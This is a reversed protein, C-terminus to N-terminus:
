RGGKEVKEEPPAKIGLRFPVLLLQSFGGEVKLFYKPLRRQVCSNKIEADRLKGGGGSCCSEGREM